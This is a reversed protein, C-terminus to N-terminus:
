HWGAGDIHIRQRVYEADSRISPPLAALLKLFAQDFDQDLGLDKLVGTPNMLLLSQIEDKKLGTLNTRYGESLHWGGSSGREAFVPVGAMSLSEMDRFITRESVELKEALQRSTMRGNTQLLLLISLM